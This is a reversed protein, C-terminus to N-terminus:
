CSRMSLTSGSSGPAPWGTSSPPDPRRRAPGGALRQGPGLALATMTAVPGRSRIPRGAALELRAAPEREADPLSPVPDLLRRARSPRRWARPSSPRARRGRARSAPGDWHQEVFDTSLDGAVFAPCGAVFRHFPLTTQSGSIETEDLARRLRAIAAPRDAAHVIVKAILPDYEARFGSGPRSRRISGSVPVPRCRSGASGAPPRPLSAPRTRSRSASRSRIATPAYKGPGRRGDGCGLATRRDRALDARPRHGPRGVLETVAHEVQLRANVELFWFSGDPEYLFEVTAANRLGAASGVRVALAHIHDRQAESLGVAPAEEILKQHRRQISCDREGVAIIRGSADGLLQVEIHRAGRIERELYVTGDGFAAAAEGASAVLAAALDAPGEVRRMGRGGGGAAAKVLLPYGVTAAAAEAAETGAPGDLSGLELTGPVVPVGVAQAMRRASLKDGIAAITTSSPGIFTLGATEVAAAFSARESLFGYGPHFPRPAM